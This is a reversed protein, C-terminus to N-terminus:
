CTGAPRISAPTKPLANLENVSLRRLGDASLRLVDARPKADDLHWDSLVVRTLARGQEDTGLAHEAPRHTHGHIMTTANAAVLCAKAAQSDVDAYEALESQRATSAERMARGMAQRESLSRTLFAEQWAASRVQARFRQYDVDDLCLADGHSLLWRQGGFSLVTPDPLDQAGCTNLFQSGILFDRNGRIFFVARRLAAERLLAGCQAEFSGPEAADDGIWVEFLDGLIFIGDAPTAQLYREFAALTAPESAQLHLDSLFDLARWHPSATM